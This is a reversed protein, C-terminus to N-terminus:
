NYQRAAGGGAGATRAYRILAMENAMLVGSMLDESERRRIALPRAFARFREPTPAEHAALIDPLPGMGVIQIPIAPFQVHAGHVRPHGEGANWHIADTCLYSIIPMDAPFVDRHWQLTITGNSCAQILSPVGAVPAAGLAIHTM